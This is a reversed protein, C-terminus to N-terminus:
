AAKRAPEAASAPADEVVDVEIIEHQRRRSLILRACQLRLDHEGIENRVRAALVNWFSLVSVAMAGIVFYWAEDPLPAM